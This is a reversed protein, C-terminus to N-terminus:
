SKFSRYKGCFTRGSELYKNCVVSDTQYLECKHMQSCKSDFLKHKLKYYLVFLIYYFKLFLRM